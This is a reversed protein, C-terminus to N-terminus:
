LVDGAAGGRAVGGAVRQEVLVVGGDGALGGRRGHLEAVRDDVVDIRELGREVRPQRDLDRLRKPARQRLRVVLKLDISDSGALFRPTKQQASSRTSAIRTTTARCSSTAIM